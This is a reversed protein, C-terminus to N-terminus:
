LPLYLVFKEKYWDGAFIKSIDTTEIYKRYPHIEGELNGGKLVMLGNPMANQHKSSVNKRILKVLDGLPMVARSIIFDFKGKEMETFSQEDLSCSAFVSAALVAIVSYIIQKM